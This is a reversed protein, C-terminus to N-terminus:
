AARAEGAGLPEAPAEDDALVRLRPQAHPTLEHLYSAIVGLTARDERTSPQQPQPTTPRAM